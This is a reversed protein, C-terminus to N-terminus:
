PGPEVGHEHVQGTREAPQVPQLPAPDDDQIPLLPLQLSRRTSHHAALHDGQRQHGVPRGDAPDLQGTGRRHAQPAGLLGDQFGEGALQRQGDLPRPQALFGGAGPEVRVGAAGPRGQEGGDGM